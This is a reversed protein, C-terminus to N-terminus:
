ACRRGFELPSCGSFACGCAVPLNEIWLRALDRRSASRRQRSKKLAGRQFVQLIGGNPGFVKITRTCYLMKLLAFLTVNRLEYFRLNTSKICISPSWIPNCTNAQRQDGAHGPRRARHAGRPSGVGRQRRGPRPRPGGPLDALHQVGRVCAFFVAFNIVIPYKQFNKM